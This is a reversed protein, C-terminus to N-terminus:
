KLLYDALSVSDQKIEDSSFKTKNGITGLNSAFVFAQRQGTEHMCGVMGDGGVHGDAGHHM